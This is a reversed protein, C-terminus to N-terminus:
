LIGLSQVRREDLTEVEGNTLSRRIQVSPRRTVGSAFVLETRVNLEQTTMVVEDASM